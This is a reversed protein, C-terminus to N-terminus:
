IHSELQDRFFIVQRAFKNFILDTVLVSGHWTGSFVSFRRGGRVHADLRAGDEEERINTIMWLHQMVVM